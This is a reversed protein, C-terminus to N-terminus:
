SVAAATPTFELSPSVSLIILHCNAQADALSARGAVTHIARAEL